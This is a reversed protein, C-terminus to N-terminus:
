WDKEENDIKYEVCNNNFKSFMYYYRSTKSNISNLVMRTIFFQLQGDEYLQIVKEDDKMLLDEYLMQSLDKLTDEKPNQAVNTVIDEIVRNKALEEVIEFKTM